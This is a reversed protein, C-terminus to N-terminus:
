CDSAAMPVCSDQWRLGTPERPSRSRLPQGFWNMMGRPRPLSPRKLFTPWNRVVCSEVVHSGNPPNTEPTQNAARPRANTRRLSNLESPNALESWRGRRHPPRPTLRTSVCIPAPPLRHSRANLRHFSMRRLLPHLPNSCTKLPGALLCSVRTENPTTSVHRLRSVIWRM